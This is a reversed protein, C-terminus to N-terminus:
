DGACLCQFDPEVGIWIIVSVHGAQVDLPHREVNQLDALAPGQGSPRSTPAGSALPAIGVLMMLAIALKVACNLQNGLYSM